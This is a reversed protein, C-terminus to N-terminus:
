CSAKGVLDDIRNFFLLRRIVLSLDNDEVVLKSDQIIQIEIHELSLYVVNLFAFASM